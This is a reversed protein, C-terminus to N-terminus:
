LKEKQWLGLIHNSFLIVNLFPRERTLIEEWRHVGQKIPKM